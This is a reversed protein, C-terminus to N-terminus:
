ETIAYSKGFIDITMIIPVVKLKPIKKRVSEEIALDV